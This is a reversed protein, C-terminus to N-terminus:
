VRNSKLGDLMQRICTWSMYSLVIAPIQSGGTAPIIERVPLNGSELDFELSLMDWHQNLFYISALAAVFLLVLALVCLCHQLVNLQLVM